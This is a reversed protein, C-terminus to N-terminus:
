GTYVFFEDSFSNKESIPNELFVDLAEEILDNLRIFADQGFLLGKFGFDIKAMEVYDFSNANEVISSLLSSFLGINVFHYISMKSVVQESPMGNGYISRYLSVMYEEYISHFDRNYINYYTLYVSTFRAYRKDACIKFCAIINRLVPILREDDSIIYADRENYSLIEKAVEMLLMDKNKFYHSITSRQVFAMEAIESMATSDPGKEYFLQRAAELIRNYTDIGRSYMRPEYSDQDHKISEM